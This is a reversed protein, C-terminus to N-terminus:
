ATATVPQRVPRALRKTFPSQDESNTVEETNETEQNDKNAKLEDSGDGIFNSEMQVPDKSLEVPAKNINLGLRAIKQKINESSAEKSIEKLKENQNGSGSGEEFDTVITSTCVGITRMGKLSFLGNGFEILPQTIILKNKLDEWPFIAFDEDSIANDKLYPLKFYTEKRNFTNHEGIDILSMLFSPDISEDVVTEGNEVKFTRVLPDWIKTTLMDLSKMGAIDKNSAKTSFVERLIADYFAQFFSKRIIKYGRPVTKEKYINGELDVCGKPVDKGEDTDDEGESIPVIKHPGPRIMAQSEKKSGDIKCWTSTRNYENGKKSVKKETRFGESGIKIEVEGFQVRLVDTKEIENGNEDIIPYKYSYKYVYNTIESSKGDAVVISKSEEPKSLCLREEEFDSFHIQLPM